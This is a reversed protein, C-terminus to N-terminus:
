GQFNGFMAIRITADQTTGIDRTRALEVRVRTTLCQSSLGHPLSYITARPRKQPM